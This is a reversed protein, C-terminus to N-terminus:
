PPPLSLLWPSWRGGGICSPLSSEIAASIADEPSAQLRLQSTLRAQMPQAQAVLPSLALTFGLIHAISASSILNV